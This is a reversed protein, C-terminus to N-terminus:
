PFPVGTIKSVSMLDQVVPEVLPIGETRRISEQRWEPDGPMLIEALHGMENLEEKPASRFVECYDDITKLFDPPDIFGDLRMAGFFHGFGIGVKGTLNTTPIDLTFPPTYPGWSAGSLACCLLDVLVSLCYGKHISRDRDVGLPLLAGHPIVDSPDNTAKGQKCVGWGTPIPKRKRQAIEVKGWAVSSTALDIVIGKEKNGPFSVAIPNTGLYPQSGGLPVVLPTTNTMAWGIRDKTKMTQLPYYGAFGFHNTNRVSVWGSGVADAKEIAIKNAKPGVVLGLGNGGDVTATSANERVIKIEPNAELRGNKFLDVYTALRAVGHSDIGRLDSQTLVEAALEADEHPVGFSKFVKGVYSNLVEVPFRTVKVEEQSSCSRSLVGVRRGALLFLPTARKGASRM